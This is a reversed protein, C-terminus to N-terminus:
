TEYFRPDNPLRIEVAANGQHTVQKLVTEYVTGSFTIAAPEVALRKRSIRSTDPLLRWLSISRGALWQEM